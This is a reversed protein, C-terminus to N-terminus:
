ILPREHREQEDYHYLTKQSVIKKFHPRESIGREELLNWIEILEDETSEEIKSDAGLSGIEGGCFITGEYMSDGAADGVDGVVIIRGKQMMFGTLFGSDGGILLTGGKMGIGARAGANGGVFMDGGRMSAAVSAGASKSLSISGSMMNEGLAWGANGNITIRPGDLLTAVYYGVSGDIELECETLIGVAINHRAAPNTITIKETGNTALEKIRTNLERTTLESADLSVL